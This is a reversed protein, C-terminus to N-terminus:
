SPAPASRSAGQRRRQRPPHRRRAPDRGPRRRGRRDRAARPDIGAHRRPQQRRPQVGLDRRLRRRGGAARRRRADRGQADDARGVARAALAPRGLDAAATQMWEGYAGFFTPTASAPRRWTPCASTRRGAPRRGRRAFWRPRTCRGRARVQGDDQLRAAGPDGPQGLRPRALVVLRAHRHTGGRRGAARARRAAPDADRSGAWYVQFFTQPNAAVVEEVPKSAFSSLGMATGRAAAARAVAVEGEPHVAQVGTPSILVPLAVTQGMVTTSLDRESSLGAVHPAFGSSASPRSTTRSRSASSPARGSRANYVSAPLRRKARRQAEAVTEFWGAAM